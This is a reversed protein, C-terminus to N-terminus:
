RLINIPDGDDLARMGEVIIKAGEAVGDILVFNKYAGLIKIRQKKAKGDEEIYIYDYAESGIASIPVKVGRKEDTEFTITGIEGILYNDRDLALKVTYLGTAHDPLENIESVTGKSLIDNININATDGLEIQKLDDASVGINLIKLEDRMIVVPMGAQVLEGESMVIEAVVSDNKAKTICKSFDIQNKNLNIKALDYNNKANEFNRLATNFQFEIDEYSSKDLADEQYLQYARDLKTKVLEKNEKANEMVQLSQELKLESSELLLAVQTKDVEFLADGSKVNQNNKVFIKNIKGSVESSYQIFDESNVVGIYDLKTTVVEVKSEAVKVPKLVDELGNEKELRGNNSWGIAIIATIVVFLVIYKKNNQIM